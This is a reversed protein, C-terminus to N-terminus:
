KNRVIERSVYSICTEKIFSLQRLYKPRKMFTDFSGMAKDNFYITKVALEFVPRNASLTLFVPYIYLRGYEVVMILVADTFSRIPRNSLFNCKYYLLGAKGTM